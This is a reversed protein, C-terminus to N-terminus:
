VFSHILNQFKHPLTYAFFLLPIRFKMGCNVCAWFPLTLNHDCCSCKLPSSSAMVINENDAESDVYKAVEELGGTMNQKRSEAMKARTEANKFSAILRKARRRAQFIIDAFEYCHMRIPCSVLCHSLSHTFTSISLKRSKICEPCLVIQDQFDEQVCTICVFRTFPIPVRCSYCYIYRLIMHAFTVLNSNTLSVPRLQVTWLLLENPKSLGFCKRTACAM